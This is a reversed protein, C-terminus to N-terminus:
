TEFAVHVDVEILELGIEDRERAHVEWQHRVSRKSGSMAREVSGIGDGVEGVFGEVVAVDHHFTIECM